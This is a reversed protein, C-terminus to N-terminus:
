LACKHWVASFQWFSPGKRWSFNVIIARIPRRRDLNLHCPWGIYLCWLLRTLTKIRAYLSVCHHVQLWYILISRALEIKCLPSRTKLFKNLRQRRSISRATQRGQIWSYKRNRNLLHDVFYFLLRLNSMDSAIIYILFSKYRYRCNITTSDISSIQM